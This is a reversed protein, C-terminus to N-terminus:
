DVIVESRGPFPFEATERIDEIWSQRRADAADQHPVLFVPAEREDAFFVVYYLRSKLRNSNVEMFDSFIMVNETYAVVLADISEDQLLEQAMRRNLLM